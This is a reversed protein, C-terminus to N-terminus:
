EELEVMQYEMGFYRAKKRQVEGEYFSVNVDEQKMIDIIFFLEADTTPSFGLVRNRTQQVKTGIGRGIM